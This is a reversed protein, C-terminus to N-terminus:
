SLSNPARLNQMATLHPLMRATVLLLQSLPEPRRLFILFKHIVYCLMAM